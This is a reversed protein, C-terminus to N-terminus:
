LLQPIVAAIALYVAMQLSVEQHDCVAIACTEPFWLCTSLRRRLNTRELPHCTPLLSGTTVYSFFVNFARVSSEKARLYRMLVHVRNLPFRFNEMENPSDSSPRSLVKVAIKDDCSSSTAAQIIGFTM